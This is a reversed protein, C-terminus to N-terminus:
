APATKAVSYLCHMWPGYEGPTAGRIPKCCGFHHPTIPESVPTACESSVLLTVQVRHVADRTWRLGGGPARLAM